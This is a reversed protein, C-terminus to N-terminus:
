VIRLVTTLVFTECKSRCPALLVEGKMLVESQVSHLCDQPTVLIYVHIYTGGAIELLYFQIVTNKQMDYFAVLPPLYPNCTPSYRRHHFDWSGGLTTRSTALSLLFVSLDNDDDDGGDDVINQM